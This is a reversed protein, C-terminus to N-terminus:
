RWGMKTWAVVACPPSSPNLGLLTTLDSPMEGPRYVELGALDSPRLAALHDADTRMRDVFIPANPCRRGVSIVPRGGPRQMTVSAMTNFIGEFALYKALQTSDKYYGIGRRKREDFQTALRQRIVSGRVTVSDLMVIKEIEFSVRATDGSPVNVIQTVPSFGIGQVEIQQTGAQVSPMIFQGSANTRASDSGAYIRANPVPKGASSVAGRVVGRARADGLSLDQRRVPAARSLILDLSTAMVSDRSSTLRVGTGLPVGCLVFSGDDTTASELKLQKGSVARGDGRLEVWTASVPAGRVPARTAADLVTGFMFGSDPPAEGRCVRRWMTMISPTAIRVPQMGETVTVNMAIGSLGLSDLIDHQMTLRYSGPTISDFQFRGIADTTTSKSGLSVFAAPLPRGSLSDFTVGTVRVLTQAHAASASIFLLATVVNRLSAMRQNRASALQSHVEVSDVDDALLDSVQRISGSASSDTLVGRPQRHPEHESDARVPM